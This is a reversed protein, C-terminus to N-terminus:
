DIINLVYKRFEIYHEPRQLLFNEINAMYYDLENHRWSIYLRAETGSMAVSFAASNIPKINESECKRPQHNLREAINICSTSGGLCQNTAVWLSGSGSPGDGKFEIVFFPYLLGENNAEMETGMSILQARQQPFGEDNYGYIM